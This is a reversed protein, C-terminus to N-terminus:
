GGPVPRDLDSDSVLRAEVLFDRTAAEYGGIARALDM